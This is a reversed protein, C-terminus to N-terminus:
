LHVKWMLHAVVLFMPFLEHVISKKFMMIFTDM